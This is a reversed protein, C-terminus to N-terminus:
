APVKCSKARLCQALEHLAVDHESENVVAIVSGGIEVWWQDPDNVSNRLRVCVDGALCPESRTLLGRNRRVSADNRLSELWIAAATILDESELPILDEERAVSGDELHAWRRGYEGCPQGVRAIRVVRASVQEVPRHVCLKGPKLSPNAFNDM